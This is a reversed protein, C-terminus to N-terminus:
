PYADAMAVLVKRNGEFPNRGHATLMNDVMLVDGKQWPFSLKCSEMVLRVEDLDQDAIASGDGYFVHRPLDEEKYITAMAERIRPELNSVHFLHAQNFWTMEGTEPHKAVAQCIQKTRLTGDQLWESQIDNERCFRDVQAPDQTNFADQWPVDMGKRYNRVYMLKKTAFRSRIDPRIKNYIERSDAIPTEGGSTAVEKSFFWLKMPWRNAYAMENHLIITQTNPYETSTYVKGKVKSRPTSGYDYNLLKPAFWQTFEQFKEASDIPFGRFLISGHKKLKEAVISEVGHRYATLDTDSAGEILWPFQSNPLLLRQQLAKAKQHNTM